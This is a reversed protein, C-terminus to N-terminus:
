KAWCHKSSYWDETGRNFYIWEAMAKNGEETTIDLGLETAKGFWVTNVQYKGVDVTDNTNASLLVQGSKGLHKGGSECQAIRELVPAEKDVVPEYAHVVEVVVAPGASLSKLHDLLNPESFTATFLIAGFGFWLLRSFFWTYASQIKSTITAFQGSTDHFINM